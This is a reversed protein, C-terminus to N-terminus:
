VKPWSLLPVARVTADAEMAEVLVVEAIVGALGCTVFKYEPWPVPVGSVLFELAFELALRSEKVDPSVTIKSLGAIDNWGLLDDLM